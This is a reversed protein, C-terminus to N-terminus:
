KFANEGYKRLVKSREKEYFKKVKWPNIQGVQNMLAVSSCNLLTYCREILSSENFSRFMSFAEKIQNVSCLGFRQMGIMLADDHLNHWTSVVIPSDDNGDNHRGPINLEIGIEGRPPLFEVFPLTKGTWWPTRKESKREAREDELEKLRMSIDQAESKERDREKWILSQKETVEYYDATPANANM